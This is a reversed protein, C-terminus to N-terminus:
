DEVFTFNLQSSAQNLQVLEEQSLSFAMAGSNIKVQEVSKAGPIAVVSKQEIVWRLAVQAPHVGREWAIKEVLKVVKLANEFNQRSSFLMNDSRLDGPIQELTQYKGTLLGQALPSYAIIGIGMRRAYPLIEKEIERQLLNYRVQNAILPESSLHKKAEQMLARSFNSVGIYRIKGQEVLEELAEMTESLPVYSNPWHVQYLDVYDTKLRKLSGELAKRVDAKRLHGGAVKTAIHMKERKGKLAKGIVEESIGNGYVEATDVWNIGYDIAAEVIRIAEPENLSIGWGWGPEGFQWAGLGIKSVRLKSLITKEM